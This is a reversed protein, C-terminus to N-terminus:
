KVESLLRRANGGFISAQAQSDLKFNRVHQQCQVSTLAVNPADSGFLIKHALKQVRPAPLDILETVVPTLDAYVEPYKEVLDLAQEGAPHGCHAIIICAQPFNQAVKELSALDQAHTHGSVAHGVHVIAPIHRKSILGWVPNLRLDNPAFNGVSCHLKLVKLNLTDFAEQLIAAPNEDEPHITAGGVVTVPHDAFQQVTAASAVNLGAAVGAKHAYPLTWVMSIGAQHLKDLITAHDLPYALTTAVIHQEFFARVKEALRGPLLHVHSDVIDPKTNEM